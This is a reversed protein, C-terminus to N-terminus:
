SQEPSCTKVKKINLRTLMPLIIIFYLLFAYFIPLLASGFGPMIKNKNHINFLMILLRTIIGIISWDILSKAYAKFFRFADDIERLSSKEKNTLATQFAQKIRIFGFASVMSFLAGLIIYLGAIPDFFRSVNVSSSSLLYIIMFPLLFLLILAIIKTITMKM